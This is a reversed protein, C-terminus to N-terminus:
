TSSFNTIIGGTVTITLLKSDYSITNSPVSVYSGNTVGASTYVWAKTSSSGVKINSVSYWSISESKYGPWGKSTGVQFVGDYVLIDGSATIGGKSVIGATTDVNLGSVTPHNNGNQWLLYGSGHYIQLNSGKITGGSITAGSITGGSSITAGGGSISDSNITWGGITGGNAYLQSTSISGNKSM